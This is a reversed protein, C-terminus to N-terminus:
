PRQYIKVHDIILRQPFSTTEDPYGPWNGGIALNLIVFFPHDFVWRNGQIQSSNVTAYCHDDFYWSIADPTWEIAYLHFDDALFDTTPFENSIAEGGCYGPGHITGHARQAIVDVSEMIDIEGCEPWGITDFNDGLMWFAPWIGKGQPLKIRAEIRGFKQTFKGQTHIRASSFERLLGDPGTTREKRAEIILNGHGDLFSNLNGSTYSQWENNGWGGGGTDHTWNDDSPPSGAPGDFDDVFTLIWHPSTAITSM